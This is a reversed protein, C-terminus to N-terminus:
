SATVSALLPSEYIPRFAGAVCTCNLLPCIDIQTLPPLGHNDGSKRARRWSSSPQKGGRKYLLNVLGNKYAQCETLTLETEPYSKVFLPIGDGLLIPIIAIGVEDVLKQEFLQHALNGGGCLWIDKGPKKRLAAIVEAPNGSIYEVGDRKGAPKSRTFVFNQMGPYSAMGHSLAFDHTHRGMLVTDIERFFKTMGYDERSGKDHFRHLWEVGGNIDAIFGDLSLAVRLRVRRM